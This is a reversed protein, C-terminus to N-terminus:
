SVNKSTTESGFDSPLKDSIASERLYPLGFRYRLLESAVAELMGMKEEFKEPSEVADHVIKGSIEYLSKIELKRELNAKTVNVGNRKLHLALAQAIKGM